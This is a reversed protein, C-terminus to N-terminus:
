ERSYKEEGLQELMLQLLDLPIAVWDTSAPLKGMERALRMVVEKDFQIDLAPWARAGSAENTIKILHKLELRLSQKGMTRKCEVLLPFGGGGFDGTRRVDGKFGPFAGSGPQRRGGIATAVKKEQAKPRKHHAQKRKGDDGRLLPPM